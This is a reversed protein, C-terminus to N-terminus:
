TFGPCLPWGSTAGKPVGAPRVVLLTEAEITALVLIAPLM